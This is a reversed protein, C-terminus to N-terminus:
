ALLFHAFNNDFFLMNKNEFEVCLCLFKIVKFLVVASLGVNFIKFDRFINFSARQTWEVIMQQSFSHAKWM